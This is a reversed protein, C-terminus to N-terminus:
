GPWGVEYAVMSMGYVDSEKTMLIELMGHDEPWLTEPASYRHKNAYVGTEEYGEGSGSNGPGAMISYRGAAALRVAGHDDILM